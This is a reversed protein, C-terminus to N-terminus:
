PRVHRVGSQRAPVGTWIQWAPVDCTVVAGAGIIAGEGVTMGPLVVANTGVFAYDGIITSGSRDIVQLAAPSAASMSLGEPKNTGGLVKAGSALGAHAGIRVQGGGSNIHAFSAVHAYAGIWVGLGGEIKVLSDIRAGAGIHIMEPKLVVCWDYLVAGAGFEAFRYILTGGLQVTVPTGGTTTTADGNM